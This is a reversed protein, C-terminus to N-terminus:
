ILALLLAQFHQIPIVFVFLLAYLHLQVDHQWPYHAAQEGFLLILGGSDYCLMCHYVEGQNPGQHARPQAFCTLM